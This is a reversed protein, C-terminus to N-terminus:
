ATLHCVGALCRELNASSNHRVAGVFSNCRAVARVFSCKVDVRVPQGGAGGTEEISSCADRIADAETAAAGITGSSRHLNKVCWFWTRQATWVKFETGL